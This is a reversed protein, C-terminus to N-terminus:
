NLRLGPFRALQALLLNCAHRDTVRQVSDRSILLM